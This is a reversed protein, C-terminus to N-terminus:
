QWYFFRDSFRVRFIHDQSSVVFLFFLVKILFCQFFLHVFIHFMSPWDGKCNVQDTVDFIRSNDWKPYGPLELYTILPLAVSFYVDGMVSGERSWWVQGNFVLYQSVDQIRAEVSEDYDPYDLHNCGHADFPRWFIDQNLFFLDWHPMSNCGHFHVFQMMM